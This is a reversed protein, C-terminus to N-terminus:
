SPNTRIGGLPGAAPSPRMAWSTRIPLLLPGHIEFAGSGPVAGSPKAAWSAGCCSRPAGGAATLTGTGSPRTRHSMASPPSTAPSTAKPIPSAVEWNIGGSVTCIFTMPPLDVTRERLVGRTTVRVPARAEPMNPAHRPPQRPIAPPRARRDAEAAIIQPDTPDTSPRVRPAPREKASKGDNKQARCNSARRASRM